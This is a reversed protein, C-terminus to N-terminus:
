KLNGELDEVGVKGLNPVILSSSAIVILHPIFLSPFPNSMPSVSIGRSQSIIFENIIMM